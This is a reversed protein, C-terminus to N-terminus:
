RSMGDDSQALLQEVFELLDPGSFLHGAVGAAQAAELDHPRDGIMLSRAKDVPWRAMCDLLMGPGPKRHDSVRRYADVVGEPHYPCYAFHDIRAGARALEGAMWDHLAVVDAESYFGRAVGAQNTVVFVLYGAENFRRVAAKAGAIWEIEEPRYVYGHDVNLVGDRDLFAAPRLAPDPM